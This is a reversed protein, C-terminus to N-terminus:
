IKKQSTLHYHPCYLCKYSRLGHKAAAVDAEFETDYGIKNLCGRLEKQDIDKRASKIINNLKKYIKDYSSM